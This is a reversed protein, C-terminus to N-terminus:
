VETLKRNGAGPLMALSKGLTTQYARDHVTDVYHWDARIRDPTATLVMYGRLSTDVYKLSGAWKNGAALTSLNALGTLLAALQAPPVGNGLYEEFGPSTVSSTAFEVGVANGDKDRLESAWANHTDGALVVLNKDLQRATNLVTDRAAWYGDWSDLNYPICPMALIAREQATLTPDGAQQRAVLGAYAAPDMAFEAPISVDGLQGTSSLLGLLVPMPLHVPGMLVQQGLVQWTASSAAMREQLWATQATGLLERAPDSVDATFGAAFEALGTAPDTATLLAGLYSGYSLQQARALVRTDLMHLSLLDGFDFSRYIVNLPSQPRTPLWEHYARVAAAKRLGFDGETEPQHNEAGDQWTDNTIEHDDWVAIFPLAAHLAQLDPDSRYQAYRQRYDALAVIEHVPDSERGMAQAQGSAYGERGYEYIYDGLHIAADLDGRKAAEAYVHFYGAPFNSCSFVALRVREVAGAPLTRTRGVPSTEDEHKFRYWYWNGAALGTVDVKVTYDQDASTSASGSKVVNRFGDDTAMEWTIEASTGEAPVARTWIVVRDALPDGSAVGHTFSVDVSDDGGCAALGLSSAVSAGGIAVGRLFRRRSTQDTM